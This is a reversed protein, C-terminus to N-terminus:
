NNAPLKGQWRTFFEVNKSVAQSASDVVLRVEQRAPICVTASCNLWSVKAKLEIQRGISLDQPPTIESYLLVEDSYGYGKIDGPLVFVEHEPWKLEGVVFGQPVEFEVRTPLGSDGSEKWYIHWGSQMKFLVGLRFPSQPAVTSHDAVLSVQTPTALQSEARVQAGILLFGIFLCTVSFFGERM